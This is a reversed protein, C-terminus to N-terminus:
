HPNSGSSAALSSDEVKEGKIWEKTGPHKLFHNEEGEEYPLKENYYVLSDDYFGRLEPKLKEDSNGQAFWILDTVKVNFRPREGSGERNAYLRYLEDLVAQARRKGGGVYIAVYPLQGGYSALYKDLGLSEKQYNDNLLSLIKFESINNKLIDSLMFRSAFDFAFTYLERPSSVKPMLHIKYEGAIDKKVYNPGRYNDGYDPVDDVVSYIENVTTVGSYEGKFEKNKFFVYGKFPALMDSESSQLGTNVAIKSLVHIDQLINRITEENKYLNLDRQEIQLGKVRSAVEREIENLTQERQEQWRGHLCLGAGLAAGISSGALVLKQKTSLNSWFSSEGGQPAQAYAHLCTAAMTAAGAGALGGGLWQQAQASPVLRSLWGSQDSAQMVGNLAVLCLLFLKKMSLVELLSKTRKM